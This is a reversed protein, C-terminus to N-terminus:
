FMDTGMVRGVANYIPNGAGDAPPRAALAGDADSSLDLLSDCHTNDPNTEDGPHVYKVLSIFDNGDLDGYATATFATPEADCGVDSVNTATSYDFYVDGDPAWGISGFKDEIIKSNRKNKGLGGGPWSSSTSLYVSNVAFASQQAEALARLNVYAEAFKSRNQYRYFSPVAVATIVGIIAVVIMLEVLTFGHKRNQGRSNRM